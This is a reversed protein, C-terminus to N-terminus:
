VRRSNHVLSVVCYLTPHRHYILSAQLDRYYVKQPLSNLVMQVVPGTAFPNLKQTSSLNIAWASLAPYWAHWCRMCGCSIMGTAAVARVQLPRGSTDSPTSSYTSSPLPIFRSEVTSSIILITSSSVRICQCQRQARLLESMAVSQNSTARDTKKNTVHVRTQRANTNGSWGPVM